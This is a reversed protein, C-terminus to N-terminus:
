GVAPFHPLTRAITPLTLRRRRHDAMQRGPLAPGLHHGACGHLRCQLGGVALGARGVRGTGLDRGRGRGAPVGGPHHVGAGALYVGDGAGISSATSCSCGGSIPQSLAVVILGAAVAARVAPDPSFAAGAFAHILLVGAGIVAGAWVGWRLM